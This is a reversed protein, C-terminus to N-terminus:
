NRGEFYIVFEIYTDKKGHNKIGHGRMGSKESEIKLCRHDFGEECIYVTRPRLLNKCNVNVKPNAKKNIWYILFTENLVMDESYKSLHLKCHKKFRLDESTVFQYGIIPCFYYFSLPADVIFRSGGNVKALKMKLTPLNLYLGIIQELGFQKRSHKHRPISRREIIMPPDHFYCIEQEPNPVARANAFLSMLDACPNPTNKIRRNEVFIGREELKGVFEAGRM